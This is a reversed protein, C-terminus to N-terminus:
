IFAKIKMIREFLRFPTEFTLDNPIPGRYLNLEGREFIHIQNDAFNINCEYPFIVFLNCYQLSLKDTYFHHITRPHNSCQRHYYGETLMEQHCFYCNM